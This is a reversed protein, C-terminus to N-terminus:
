TSPLPKGIWYCCYDVRNEMVLAVVQVNFCQFCGQSARIQEGRGEQLRATPFLSGGSMVDREGSWPWLWPPCGITFKKFCSLSPGAFFNATASKRSKRALLTLNHVSQKMFSASKCHLRLDFTKAADLLIQLFLSFNYKRLIMQDTWIWFLHFSFCTKNESSAIPITDNRIQMGRGLWVWEIHIGRANKSQSRLYSFPVLM